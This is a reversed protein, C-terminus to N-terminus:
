DERWKHDCSGAPGACQYFRTAPEDASRIQMEFYYAQAHGAIGMPYPTLCSLSTAFSIDRSIQYLSDCSM